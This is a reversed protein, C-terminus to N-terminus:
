QFPIDLPSNKYDALPHESSWSEMESKSDFEYVNGSIYLDSVSLGMQDIMDLFIQVTTFSGSGSGGLNIKLSEPWGLLFLQSGSITFLKGDDGLAEVSFNGPESNFFPLDFLESGYTYSINNDSDVIGLLLKSVPVSLTQWYISGSYYGWADEINNDELSMYNYMRMDLSCNGDPSNGELYGRVIFRVTSVVSNGEDDMTTIKKGDNIDLLWYKQSDETDNTDDSDKTCSLVMLGLVIQFFIISYKM